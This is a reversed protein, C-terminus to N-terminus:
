KVLTKKGDMIYIGKTAKEVRQGQLNFIGKQGKNEQSIGLIATENGYTGDETLYVSKHSPDPVPFADEGINQHWVGDNENLNLMFAVEGCLLQETTIQTGQAEGYQNLYFYNSGTTAGGRSFTCGNTPNWQIDSVLLCNYYTVTGGGVFGACSHTESGM